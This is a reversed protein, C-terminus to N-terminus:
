PGLYECFPGYDTVNGVMKDIHSYTIEGWGPTWIDTEIYLGAGGALKGYHPVTILAIAGIAKAVQVINDANYEVTSQWPGQEKIRVVKNNASYDVKVNGEAVMERIAQGKDDFWLVVRLTGEEHVQVEFNCPNDCDIGGGPPCSITYDYYIPYHIPGDAYAPITVAL